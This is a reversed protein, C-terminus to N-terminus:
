MYANRGKPSFIYNLGTNLRDTLTYGTWIFALHVTNGAIKSTNHVLNTKVLYNKERHKFSM